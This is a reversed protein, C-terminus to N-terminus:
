FGRWPWQNTALTMQRKKFRLPHTGNREVMVIRGQCMREVRKRKEEGLRRRTTTRGESGRSKSVRGPERDGARVAGREDASSQVRREDLGFHVVSELFGHKDNELQQARADQMALFEAVLVPRTSRDRRRALLILGAAHQDHTTQRHKREIEAHRVSRIAGASM